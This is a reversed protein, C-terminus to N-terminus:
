YDVAHFAWDGYGIRQNNVCWYGDKLNCTFKTSEWAEVDYCRERIECGNACKQCIVYVPGERPFFFLQRRESSLQVDTSPCKSSMWVFKNASYGFPDKPSPICTGDYFACAYETDDLCSACGRGACVGGVGAEEANLQSTHEYHWAWGGYGVSQGNKCWYGTKIACAFRTSGWEEVTYCKGNHAKCGNACNECKSWSVAKESSLQVDELSHLAQRLATNTERLTSSRQAFIAVILLALFFTRM